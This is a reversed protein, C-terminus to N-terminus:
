LQRLEVRGQGEMIKATGLAGDLVADGLLMHVQVQDKCFQQFSADESQKDCYALHSKTEKEFWQQQAQCEPSNILFESQISAVQHNM